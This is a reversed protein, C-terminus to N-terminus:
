QAPGGSNIVAALEIFHGNGGSETPSFGGRISNMEGNLDGYAIPGFMQTM